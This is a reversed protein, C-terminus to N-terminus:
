VRERCSARGDQIYIKNLISHSKYKNNIVNNIRKYIDNEERHKMERYLKVLTMLQMDRVSILGNGLYTEDLYLRHINQNIHFYDVERLQKRILNDIETVCECSFVVSRIYHRVQGVVQTNIYRINTKNNLELSKLEEHRQIVKEIIMEDNIKRENVEFIYTIM